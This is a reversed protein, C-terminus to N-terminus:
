YGQALGAGARPDAMGHWTGNRRVISAGVGVGGGARVEHGRVRLADLLEAPFGDGEVSLQDPLHQHHVRPASVAANADMGHDVVNSVIQWVASIIRPGGSAGTVLLPAGSPDLVITPTMSSLMRKHPQIANSEGQVLGYGNPAGPKAAFDDMENNLLFGAGSVVVRSGYGTNITTTLAVAGGKGDVVSFHTTHDGERDMGLGPSVASSPTARDLTITSRLQAIHSDSLLDATPVTVFDPDGLYHNRVAFARRMAEATLHVADTSHWDRASLRFPELIGAMLAITLGGSSPPPMSIITHDGYEFKVPTRWKAQYAKLDDHTIIGGGRQMEAVILDATAGEYFGEPGQEAIGTLVAALDPNKWTSGAALPQGDPLFLAASGEFQRFRNAQGNVARALGPSVTFGDAALRIAPQVLEAWPKSGYRRHAEWLGAVSGPVGSALHGILSKDTPEGNEDLYMDRTAAGPATERFDLADITGDPTRLVIFGGGGINGASPLTVALAFATAVAADVANGGSRLVDVGVRTAHEEDTAVMGNAGVAPPADISHRWDSPIKAAIGSAPGAAAPSGSPAACASLTLALASLFLVARRRVTLRFASM